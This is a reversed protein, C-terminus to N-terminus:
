FLRNTPAHPENASFTRNRIPATGCGLSVVNSVTRLRVATRAAYVNSNAKRTNATKVGGVFVTGLPNERNGAVENGCCNLFANKSVITRMGEKRIRSM